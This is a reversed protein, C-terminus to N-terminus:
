EQKKIEVAPPKCKAVEEKGESETLLHLKNRAVVIGMQVQQKIYYVLGKELIIPLTSTNEAKGVIDTEGPEREWCLYGKPGTKGILKEGDKIDMLIASGFSTPRVVYIRAMEPNEIRKSQDPFPVFQKTSACRMVMAVTLFVALYLLPKKMNKRGGYM